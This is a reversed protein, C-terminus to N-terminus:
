HNSAKDLSILLLLLPTPKKVTIIILWRLLRGFSTTTHLGKFGHQYRESLDATVSTRPKVCFLVHHFEIAHTICSTPSSTCITGEPKLM